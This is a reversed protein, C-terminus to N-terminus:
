KKKVYNFNIIIRFPQDICNTGTHILESDFEVYKNRESLIKQGNEFKTYGNNNNIYLIGTTIKCNKAKDDIFDNHMGHEIIKEGRFILNAKIKVILFPDLLDIVPILLNFFLDSTKVGNNFFYHVLQFDLLNTKDVRSLYWPFNHQKLTNELPIFYEEKLFNESLNM